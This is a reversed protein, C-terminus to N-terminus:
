FVSDDDRENLGGKEEFRFDNKAKRKINTPRTREIEFSSVMKRLAPESRKWQGLTSGSVLMVVDSSGVPQVAAILARRPVEAQGPSLASFTIDLLRKSGKGSSLVKVDTPAGYAGFRGETSLVSKTFFRDDVDGISAGSPLAAVQLFAGDATKSRVEVDYFMGRVLPFGQESQFTATAAVGGDLVLEASVTPSDKKGTEQVAELLVM